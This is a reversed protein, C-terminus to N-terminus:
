KAGAPSSFAEAGGESSRRVRALLLALLCGLVLVGVLATWAGDFGWPGASLAGFSPPGFAFGGFFGVSLMGASTAPTGFARDRLLMSMAIANTAVATLGIGITGAWLMWHREPTAQATVGIACAALALLILLLWSEDRMRGGLPTLVVRALIGMVGFVAVLSGAVVSSMGQRTAFVGLFTIYASLAVGACLQIAMLLALVRSPRALGFSAPKGAAAKPAIRPAGLALLLGLPVLLLLAARWGFQLAIGPLVLGAFLAAVQVGAQKLGVVAAKKQPPVREAILLNTAPNSLAQAIGCVAVALVVGGFGPAVGILGYALTAVLFLLTLARRSGLRNVLPGAWLSLLAAFGFASMTLYGLWGPAVGLDAVLFPGLTGIAYFILMPLAMAGTLVTRLLFADLASDAAPPSTDPTM